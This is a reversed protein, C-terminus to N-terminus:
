TYLVHLGNVGNEISKYRGFVFFRSSMVRIATLLCLAYFNIIEAIMTPSILSIFNLRGLFAALYQYRFEKELLQLRNFKM